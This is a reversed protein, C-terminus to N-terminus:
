NNHKEWRESALAQAKSIDAPTMQKQVIDLNDAEMKQGQVKYM